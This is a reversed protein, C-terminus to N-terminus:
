ELVKYIITEYVYGGSGSLYYGTHWLKGVPYITEAEQPVEIIIEAILNADWDNVFLCNNGLGKNTGSRISYVYNEDAYNSQNGYRSTNTGVATRVYNLEGDLIQFKSQFGTVGCIYQDLEESYGISYTPAGIDVDYEVTLTEPDIVSLMTSNPKYHVAVIKGTRSNYALDNAHGIELKESAAVVSWDALDIKVIKGSQEHGSQPTLSFYAYEGDCCAGQLVYWSGQPQVKGIINNQSKWEGSGDFTLTFKMSFDEELILTQNIARNSKYNYDLYKGIFMKVAIIEDEGAGACFYVDSGKVAIQCEGEKLEGSYNEADRAKSSGFIFAPMGEELDDASIVPLRYTSSAEILQQLFEADAERQGKVIVYEWLKAGQIEMYGIGYSPDVYKVDESEGSFLSEETGSPFYDSILLEVAKKASKRNGGVIVIENKDFLIGYDKERLGIIYGKEVDGITICKDVEDRDAVVVVEADSWAEIATKLSEANEEFGDIEILLGIQDKVEATEETNPITQANKGCAIMMFVLAICVGLRWIQKM